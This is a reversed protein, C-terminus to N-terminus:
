IFLNLSSTFAAEMYSAVGGIKVNDLLEEKKVGMIDMSMQCAIFTVGADIAQQIMNDLQSVNKQKMRIKMMIPGMNLMNLKSLKLNQSHKPLMISFLRGIFDKKVKQHKRKKIVSLGWFTFFMSVKRGTSAAGLALVFSALAKDLDDSFVIITADNLNNIVERKALSQAVSQFNTDAKGKQIKATIIGGNENLSILSNKTLNTWASVDKKFGPDTAKVEIIQGPNLQDFSKKLKLIPGPCSLGCADITIIENQSINDVFQNKLNLSGIAAQYIMDDKGIYDKEFIDENSQKQTVHEYTKYGGSLNYVQTFGNQTLIRYAIYGRQGVGCFVIIKKDEPIKDLNKRLEDVPINVAGPITGLEYEEVTRVDLLFISKSDMEILDHWHIQKLYGNVINEAILGAINIPDKASSYPPAYAHEFNVLDEITGNKQILAAIVDIRKDVGEYGVIQAGLIRKNDKNFLIKLTMPLAGPYYGAHSSTHVLIKEYNIGKQRIVKDSLGTSAITLDFVKAISTGITGIYKKQPGFVLNDAAIRAQKNAPGALPVPINENLVLHKGEIVDGIAFIDPNSTQLFENVIIGGKPGISLGADKALTVEPKVGISLIVMDAYIKKGSKLNLEIKEKPNFSVVSDQLFFEVGKTKLHQHIESAIEFDVLPMVQPAMEVLTVMLNLNHLNEAMELGIFGAGVIVAKKVNNNKIYNKIEETDEPNRLTFIRNDDIGPLPPKFPQAGPSLILKDYSIKDTKNIKLNKFIVEKKLPDIKIVENNIRVDVNFRSNFSEPTQVFINEWEKITEGIYYPLGCNAYSIYQGREFLIIESKEDIRRLRAAATAGGAVGGVIVYRSM